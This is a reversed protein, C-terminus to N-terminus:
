KFKKFIVDQYHLTPFVFKKLVKFKKKYLYNKIENFSKNEYLNGFQNEILIYNVEGIKSKGGELVNYEFGEVDIKLLCNTFKINKFFVNISSTKIPYKDVYNKKSGILINKFKLYSSNENFKSMTSASSLKSIYFIKKSPKESLGMNILKVKKNNLFNRKLIRFISAQPEFAYFKKISNIKIVYSLFEGKHAGVDILERLNLKQLYNLIRKHHYNSFFLFFNDLFTM